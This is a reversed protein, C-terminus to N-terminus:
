PSCSPGRRLRRPLGSTAPHPHRRRHMRILRIPPHPARNPPQWGAVGSAKGCTLGNGGGPHTSVLIVLHWGRRRATATALVLARFRDSPCVVTAPRMVIPAIAPAAHPADHCCGWSSMTVSATNPASTGYMHSQQRHGFSRQGNGVHHIKPGNRPQPSLSRSVFLSPRNRIFPGHRHCGSPGQRRRPALSSPRPLGYVTSM